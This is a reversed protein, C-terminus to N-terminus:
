HLIVDRGEQRTLAFILEEWNLGALKLSSAQVGIQELYHADSARVLTYDPYQQGLQEV